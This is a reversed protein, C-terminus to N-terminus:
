AAREGKKPELPRPRRCVLRGSFKAQLTRLRQYFLEPDQQTERELQHRVARVEEVIPDAKM